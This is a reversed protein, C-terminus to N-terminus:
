DVAPKYRYGTMREGSEEIVAIPRFRADGRHGARFRIRLTIRPLHFRPTGRAHEHRHRVRRRGPEGRLGDTRWRRETKWV